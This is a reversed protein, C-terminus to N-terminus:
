CVFVDDVDGHFFPTMLDRGMKEDNAVDGMLDGLISAAGQAADRLRGKTRQAGEPHLHGFRSGPSFLLDNCNKSKMWAGIIFINHIPEIKMTYM